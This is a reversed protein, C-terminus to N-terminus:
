GPFAARAIGPDTPTGQRALAVQGVHCVVGAKEDQGPDPNRVQGTMEERADRLADLGIPRRLIAVREMAQLGEDIATAIATDAIPGGVPLPDTLARPAAAIVAIM